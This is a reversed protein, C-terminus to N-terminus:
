YKVASLIVLSPNEEEKISKIASFISDSEVIVNLALVGNDIYSIIYKNM